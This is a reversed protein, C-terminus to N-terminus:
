VRVFEWRAADDNSAAYTLKPQGKVDAIGTPRLRHGWRVYMNFGGKERPRIIFSEWLDLKKGHVIYNGRNDHGLYRGSVADRFGLWGDPHEECHWQWGGRAHADGELTIKGAVFTICRNSGAERILYTNNPEPISTDPRNMASALSSQYSPPPGGADDGLESTSMMVPTQIPTAMISSNASQISLSEKRKILGM